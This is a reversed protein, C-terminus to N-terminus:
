KPLARADSDTNTVLDSLRMMIDPTYFSPADTTASRSVDSDSVRPPATPRYARFPRSRLSVSPLAPRAYPHQVGRPQRPCAVTDADKLRVDSTRSLAFSFSFASPLSHGLPFPLPAQVDIAKRLSNRGFKEVKEELVTRVFARRRTSFPSTTNQPVNIPNLRPPITM